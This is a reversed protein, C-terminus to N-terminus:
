EGNGVPITASLVFGGGDSPRASLSGGFLEVRERLGTLGHGSPVTPRGNSRPPGNEIELAVADPRRALHVRVPGGPSHKLANTLGEQVIRYISLEIAPTLRDRADLDLDIRLGAREYEAALAPIDALRHQPRTGTAKDGDAIL